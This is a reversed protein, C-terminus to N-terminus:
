GETVKSVDVRDLLRALLEHGRASPHTHDAALLEGAASLGEPGNFAHYSDVCSADAGAAAACDAEQFADLTTATPRTAAEPAGPRGIWDNYATIVMQVTPRGARLRRAEALFLKLEDAQQQAAYTMCPERYQQWPPSDGNAGDCSDTTIAWPTDFHGVAVILIDTAAVATRFYDDSRIRTVLEATTLADDTSLNDAEVTRGTRTGLSTAYLDVYPTCGGCDDQGALTDGIVAVRLGPGGAAPEVAAASTVPTTLDAQGSTGSCGSVTLLV